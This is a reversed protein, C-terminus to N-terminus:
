DSLSKQLPTLLSDGAITDFDGVERFAPLIAFGEKVDYVSIPLVNVLPIFGAQATYVYSFYRLAM